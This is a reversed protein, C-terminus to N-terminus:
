AAKRKQRPAPKLRTAARALTEAIRTQWGPGTAKFAEIVDPALRLSVRVKPNEIKPRGRKFAEVVEPMVDIMRRARAFDAATLEPADPDDIM